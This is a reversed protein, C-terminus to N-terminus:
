AAFRVTVFRKEGEKEVLLLVSPRDAKAAERVKSALEEPTGVPQQGIMSIVSGPRIGAKAAPSGDAVRAVLVGQTEADLKLSKRAETTLPALYLGLKAKSDMVGDQSSTTEAVQEDGPMSGIVVPISKITGQRHVGLLVETGARTAAIIRPLQKMEELSQGAVSMIVDGAQLGAKAAPSGPVLSAVLAGQTGKLSLGEAIEETVPQIQVGLWGREIRGQDRLQAVVRKVTDAPIAFGIGVSGGSPSFIATNVGIVRGNADFLPGGSNGRNIPADVQLYDDLAGDHIDRGRASLIGATVSGGLGFPNGVALVWDGVRAGDSDGFEVYPLAKNSEIKLLALDTKSDRGKIRAPHRSGDNLMVTVEEAGEVVHNNSVLYGDPSILFGSGVGQVRKGEGHGQGPLNREEFFRKFLEHFPTGEPLDPIQMSPGGSQGALKGSVAVNVVAPTVRAAMDAFSAPGSAVALGSPVLTPRSAAVPDANVWHAAVLALAVAGALASRVLIRRRHANTVSDTRPHTTDTKMLM